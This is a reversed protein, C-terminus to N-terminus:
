VTCGLQTHNHKYQVTTNSNIAIAQHQHTRHTNSTQPAHPVTLLDKYNNYRAEPDENLKTLSKLVCLQAAGWHDKMLQIQKPFLTDLMNRTTYRM